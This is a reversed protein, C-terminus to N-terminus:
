ITFTLYVAANDGEAPLGGFSKLGPAKQSNWKAWPFAQEKTGGEGQLIPGAWWLGGKKLLDPPSAGPM